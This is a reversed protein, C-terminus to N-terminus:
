RRLHPLNDAVGRKNKDLILPVEARGYTVNGNRTYKRIRYLKFDKMPLYKAFDFIAERAEKLTDFYTERYTRGVKRVLVAKQVTGTKPRDGIEGRFNGYGQYTNPDLLDAETANSFVFGFASRLFPLSHSNFVGVLWEFGDATLYLNHGELATLDQTDITYHQYTSHAYAKLVVALNAARLPYKRIAEDTLIGLEKCRLIYAADM